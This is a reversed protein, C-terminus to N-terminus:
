LFSRETSKIKHMESGGRIGYVEEVYGERVWHRSRYPHRDHWRDKEYNLFEWDIEPLVVYGRRKLLAKIMQMTHQKM